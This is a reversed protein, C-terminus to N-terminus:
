KNINIHFNCHSIIAGAFLASLRQKQVSIATSTTVLIDGNGSQTCEDLTTLSVHAGHAPVSDASDDMKIDMNGSTNSVTSSRKMTVADTMPVNNVQPEPLLLDTALFDPLPLLPLTDSLDPLATELAAASNSSASGDHVVAASPCVPPAGLAVSPKKPLPPAGLAATPRTRGTSGLLPMPENIFTPPAGLAAPPTKRKLRAGVGASPTKHTNTTGLATPPACLAPRSLICSDARTKSARNQPMQFDDQSLQMDQRGYGHLDTSMAHKKTMCPKDMYPYLSSQNKHGTVSMIDKPKYGRADLTSICTCWICHNTYPKSLNGLASMRKMYKELTNKGIPMNDYWQGSRRYGKSPRQFLANCSPHLKSLYDKIHRVPCHPDYEISSIIGENEDM